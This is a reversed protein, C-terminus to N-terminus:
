SGATHQPRVELSADTENISESVAQGYVPFGGGPTATGLVVITKEAAKAGFTVAMALILPLSALLLTRM